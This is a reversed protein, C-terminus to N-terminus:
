PKGAATPPGIRQASWCPKLRTSARSSRRCPSNPSCQRGAPNSICRTAAPLCSASTRSPRAHVVSGGQTVHVEHQVFHEIHRRMTSAQAIFQVAFGDIADKFLTGTKGALHNSREIALTIFLAAAQLLAAHARGIAEGLGVPMIHLLTPSAHGTWHLVIALAQRLHDRGTKVFHQHARRQRETNIGAQGLAGHQGQVPMAARHELTVVQALQDAAFPSAGHAQGLGLGAGVKRQQAGAGLRLAIAAVADAAALDEDAAAVLVQGIVDDMQHQRAQRIRRGPHTADAQEQHGLEFTAIVTAQPRAVCDGAARQLVLHTDLPRRGAHHVEVAGAAPQHPLGVLAQGAHEGHHVICAELDAQLSQANGLRRELTAQGISALAQLRAAQGPRHRGLARGVRDDTVRIHPTHQQGLLGEALAAPHQRSKGGLCQVQLVAGCLRLRPRRGPAHRSQQDGDDLRKEGIDPLFGGAQTYLEVAPM